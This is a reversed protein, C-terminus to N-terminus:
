PIIWPPHYLYAIFEKKRKINLFKPQRGRDGEKKEINKDSDERLLEEVLPLKSASEVACYTLTGQLM